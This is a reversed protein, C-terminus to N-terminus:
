ILNELTYKLASEVAEEYSKPTVYTYIDGGMYYFSKYVQCWWHITKEEKDPQRPYVIIHLDHVERLWKLAMQHTPASTFGRGTDLNYNLGFACKELKGDYSYLTRVNESFGKEKLLKAVEFGCYDEIIQKM